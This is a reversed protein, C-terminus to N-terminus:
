RSFVVTGNRITKSVDAFAEINLRPDSNLVVFDADYDQQIRGASQSYGFRAAPATTLSQLINQYTMGAQGMLLFEETTDADLMYGVDTGFLITIGQNNALETQKIATSEVIDIINAPFGERTLDYRFLKLTPVLSVGKDVMLPILSQDWPGKIQAPFTHALVDVGNEIAVRAGESDSPHAFVLSDSAHATQTAAFVHEPKMLVVDNPTAWSGTFLKIGDAGQNLTESVLRKVQDSSSFEPLSIPKIYYPSGGQPVFSGGATIIRPGQVEGSDIRKKILQTKQLWSGTDVTNVFGWSLFMNKLMQELSKREQEAAKELQGTYHVHCNWYGATIYQGTLDVVQANEPIELESASGVQSIKNAKIILRGNEIPQELPTTFITAGVYATISESAFLATVSSSVLATLVIVIKLLNQIQMNNEISGLIENQVSYILVQRLVKVPLM